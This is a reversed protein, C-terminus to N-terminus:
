KELVMGLINARPLAGWARSDYAGLANDGLVYYCDKPVTYPHVIPILGSDTPHSGLDKFRVSAIQLPPTVPAGDILIHGDSFSIKEGPLGVIRILWVVDKLEDTKPRVVVIDWRQPSRFTYAWMDAIVKDGHQFTPQMSDGPVTFTQRNCGVLGLAVACIAVFCARWTMM